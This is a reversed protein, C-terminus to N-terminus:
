PFTSRESAQSNDAATQSRTEPTVCVHDDPIAERWVYSQICTDPGYTRDVPDIREAAQRNDDLAQDRVEKTVCIRDDPLAERLVFEGRCPYSKNMATKPKWTRCISAFASPVGPKIPSTTTDEGPCSVSVRVNPYPFILDGTHIKTGISAPTWNAQKEIWVSVKGKGKGLGKISEVTAFAEQDDEEVPRGIVSTASTALLLAVTLFTFKLMEDIRM